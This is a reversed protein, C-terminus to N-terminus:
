QYAFTFTGDVVNQHSATMKDDIHLFLATLSGVTGMIRLFEIFTAAMARGYLTSDSWAM